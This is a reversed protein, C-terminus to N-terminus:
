TARGTSTETEVKAVDLTKVLNAVAKDLSVGSAAASKELDEIVLNDPTGWTTM